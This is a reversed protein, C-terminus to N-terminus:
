CLLMGTYEHPCYCTRITRCSNASFTVRIMSHHHALKFSNVTGFIDETIQEKFREWLM